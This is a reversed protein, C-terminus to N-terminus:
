ARPARPRRRVSIAPVKALEAVIDDTLFEDRFDDRHVIAWRCFQTYGNISNGDM